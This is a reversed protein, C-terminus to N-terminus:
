SLLNNLLPMMPDSTAHSCALEFLHIGSFGRGTSQGGPTWYFKESEHRVWWPWSACARRGAHVQKITEKWMWAKNKAISREYNGEESHQRGHGLFVWLPYHGPRGWVFGMPDWLEFNPALELVLGTQDTKPPRPLPKLNAGGARLDAAAASEMDAPGKVMEDRIIKQQSVGM